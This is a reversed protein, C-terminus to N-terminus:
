MTVLMTLMALAMSLRCVLAFEPRSAWTSLPGGVPTAVPVLRAGSRLVYVTYYALLAGTVLPAGGTVGSAAGHGAHGGHAPLAMAVAMYVMALSGVMHHLHHGGRRAALLARLAAVGFVAAYVAWSWDPPTLVAAPLAMAAMGFGMVAESGAARREEGACRRMRLLCYAGSAGCLAVLLWASLAPGHM